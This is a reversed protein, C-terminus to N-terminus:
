RGLRRDTGRESEPRRGLSRGRDKVRLFSAPIVKKKSQSENDKQM